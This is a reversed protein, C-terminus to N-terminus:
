VFGGRRPVDAARQSGERTDVWRPLDGPQARVAPRTAPLVEGLLRTRKAIIKKPKNPM